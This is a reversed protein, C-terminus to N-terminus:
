CKFHINLINAMLDFAKKIDDFPIDEHFTDSMSNVFIRYQKKIFIANNKNFKGIWDKCNDNFEKQTKFIHANKIDYKNESDVFYGENQFKYIYAKHGINVYYKFGEVKDIKKLINEFIDFNMKLIDNETDYLKHGMGKLRKAMKLAYCNKCGSSIKTCTAGCKKAEIFNLTEDTWRIKTKAM